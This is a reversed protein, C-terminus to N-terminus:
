SKNSGIMASEVGARFYQRFDGLVKTGPKATALMGRLNRTDTSTLTQTVLKRVVDPDFSAERIQEVLANLAPDTAKESPQSGHLTAIAQGLARSQADTSVEVGLTEIAAAAIRADEKGLEGAVERLLVPQSQLKYLMEDTLIALAERRLTAREERAQPRLQRQVRLRTIKVRLGLTDNQSHAAVTEAEDLLRDAQDLRARTEEIVAMQLLLELAMDIAGANSAAEVGSRAVRLAEDFNGLFRLAEAEDYYLSSRPLRETREHLVLLAKEAAGSQLFRGVSRHAQREWAEQGATRRVSDDLTIGLKEALWLRQLAPLEEGAGKLRSAAESSWREDLIDESECLRLRHYIEEGRAVAGSQPEYFAVAARDIQEVVEPAVHDTLDALMARRVDVRHRLSGDIPDVEVLAAEKALEDFIRYEAREENLVLKCPKALVHRIVDPAIRRVILGPYAVKRVDDGHVHHLIRGYLLAQIKEAKLKVLFESRAERLKQVGEDRVLRAALKLCMPSRGVINILAELDVADLPRVGALQIANQLLDRAPGEDLVGLDIPRWPLPISEITPENSSGKLALDPFGM